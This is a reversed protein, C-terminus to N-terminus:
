ISPYCEKNGGHKQNRDGISNKNNSPLTKSNKGCQTMSAQPDFRSYSCPKGTGNCAQVTANGAGIEAGDVVYDSAM